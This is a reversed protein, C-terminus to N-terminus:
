PTAKAGGAPKASGDASTPTDSGAATQIEQHRKIWQAIKSDNQIWAPEKQDSICVVSNWVESAIQNHIQSLSSLTRGAQLAKQSPAYFANVAAAATGVAPLMIATLRLLKTRTEEGKGYETSSLSVVITTLLGLLIIIWQMIAAQATASQVNGAGAIRQRYLTLSLQIVQRQHITPLKDANTKAGAWDGQGFPTLQAALVDPLDSISPVGMCSAFWTAITWHDAYAAWLEAQAQETIRKQEIAAVAGDSPQQPQQPSSTLHTRPSLADLGRKFTAPSVLYVVVAIVVLLVASYSIGQAIQKLRDHWRIEAFWQRARNAAQETLTTGLLNSRVGGIQVM